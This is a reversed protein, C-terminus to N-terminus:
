KDGLLAYAANASKSDNQKLCDCLTLSCYATAPRPDAHPQKSALGLWWRLPVERSEICAGPRISSRDADTCAKSVGKTCENVDGWDGAWRSTMAPTSRFESRWIPEM